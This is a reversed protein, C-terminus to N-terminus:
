IVQETAFHSMFHAIRADNENLQYTELFQLIDIAGGRNNAAILLDCGAELAAEARVAYDGVQSAAYMTLDDSVIVGDFCLEERLVKQLWYSSYTVVKDNVLPYIIHAPMVADYDAALLKFPMLDCQWIAEKSRDDVSVEHHSDSVIGGHGPFHKAITRMGCQKMTDIVVKALQACVEPNNSFSRDSIVESVGHDIDLVPALSMNVGCSQLETVMTTTMERLDDIAEIPEEEHFNGWYRMAPLATFEQRFRQIRGGEQDVAIILGPRLRNISVTLASLQERSQYNRTFLLVGAVAPHKLLETEEQTLEPGSLDIIVRQKSM